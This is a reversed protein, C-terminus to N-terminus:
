EAGADREARAEALLDPWTWMGTSDPESEVFGWREYFGDIDAFLNAYGGDELEPEVWAMLADMMVTGLGQGQHPEAVAMDSIHYVCGGDGIVRAMGVPYPVEGTVDVVHVGYLTNPLGAEAAERSREAMGAERRLRLFDDVSPTTERLEYADPLDAGGAYGVSGRDADSGDDEVTDAPADSDSMTTSPIDDTM